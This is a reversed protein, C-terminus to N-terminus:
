SGSSHVMGKCVEAALEDLAAMKEVNANAPSTQM